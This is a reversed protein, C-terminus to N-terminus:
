FTKTLRKQALNMISAQTNKHNNYQKTQKHAMQTKNTLKNIKNKLYLYQNDMVNNLTDHIQLLAHQWSVKYYEAGQLHLQYLLQNLHQKKNYLYKM